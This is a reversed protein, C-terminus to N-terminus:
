LLIKCLTDKDLNNYDFLYDETWFTKKNTKSMTISKIKGDSNGIYGKEILIKEPIVYFKSSNKCNLWYFDCDGIEYTQRKRKGEIRCKMKSFSFHYTNTNKHPHGGVKEQIKKDGIKFDYVLGEMENNIFNLFKINEERKKRYEYETQTNKSAPTDLEGLFYKQIGSNNYYTELIDIINNDIKYKNYKSNNGITLGNKLHSVLNNEFIWTNKDELCICIIIFNEYDKSLDFKYADSTNNKVKKQTSKVQIGIWEDIDSDTSKPKIAIDAKCGDFLRIFNFKESLINKIYSICETEIMIKYLKNESM